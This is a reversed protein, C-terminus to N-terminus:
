ECEVGRVELGEATGGKFDGDRTYAASKVRRLANAEYILRILQLAIQMSLSPARMEPSACGVGASRM